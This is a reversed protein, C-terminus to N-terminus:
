PPGGAPAPAAKAGGGGVSAPVPDYGLHGTVAVIRSGVALRHDVARVLRLLGNVKVDVAELVSGTDVDTVGGALPPGAVHVLARVVGVIRDRVSAVSHEDRLDVEMLDPRHGGHRALGLVTLGGRLAESIASGLAGTAGAVVALGQTM